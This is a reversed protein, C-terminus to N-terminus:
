QTLELYLKESEDILNQWDKKWNKKAPQPYYFFDNDNTKIINKINQINQPTPKRRCIYYAIRSVKTAITRPIQGFAFRNNYNNIIKPNSIRLAHFLEKMTIGKDSINKITYIPSLKKILMCLKIQSKLKFDNFRFTIHTLEEEKILSNFEKEPPWLNLKSNKPIKNEM